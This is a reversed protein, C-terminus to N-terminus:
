SKDIRRFSGHFGNVQSEEPVAYGKRHNWHVPCFPYSDTVNIGQETPCYSLPCHDIFRSPNGWWRPGNKNFYLLTLFILPGALAVGTDLAASLIYNYRKWWRRHYKFICYNFIFGTLFWSNFTVATAPPWQNAAGLLVPMNMQKAYDQVYWLM